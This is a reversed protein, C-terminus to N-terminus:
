IPDNRYVVSFRKTIVKVSGREMVLFLIKFALQGKCVSPYM